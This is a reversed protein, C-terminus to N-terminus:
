PLADLWRVLLGNVADPAEEHVFHGVGDLVHEEFPGSVFRASGGSRMAAAGDTGGRLHLVPTAVSRELRNRFRRGDSRWQSRVIWRYYEAASHAAFPVALAEAYRQAVEQPPWGSGPASWARLLREVYRGDRTMQREPVFPRQLGLLHANARLQHPHVLLSARRLVLPHPMALPAAARTVDPQMAPMSWAVWGGLGHGVVVASSAGLSRVVGAADAAVTFTDYGRPPKDSAGFGRLDMAAARYGADALATLQERWAWWFQPFGHLLLVLPGRGAEAVHFRAGNASVFRHQWPGDVLVSAADTTM